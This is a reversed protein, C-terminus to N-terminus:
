NMCIMTSSIGCCPLYSEGQPTGWTTKKRITSACLQVNIMRCLLMNGHWQNIKPHSNIKVLLQM